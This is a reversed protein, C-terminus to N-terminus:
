PATLRGMTTLLEEDHYPKGMYVNVGLNMAYERHKDAIRSTIMIIPIHSLRPEARVNRALDFGDMRPMEIDVLMVTPVLTQLQELADIGDKALVVDWGERLLLKQTVKRVTLSDDVVMAIRPKHKASTLLMLTSLEAMQSIPSSSSAIPAPLDSPPMLPDEALVARQTDRAKDFTPTALDTPIATTTSTSTSTSTSAPKLGQAISLQVPDLILCLRGDSLLTASTLGPIRRMFPSLPKVVTEVNGAISDVHVAISTDGNSLLLILASAHQVAAVSEGMLSALHALPYTKGQTVYSGQQYAVSLDKPKLSVVNHILASPIAYQVSNASVMLVQNVALTFPVRLTLTTGQQPSTALSIRGGLSGVDNRVVDMGIGRGALGTVTDATSFGPTFILESLQATTPAIHPSLLGKSLALQHIKPLDLGSGDDSLTIELENGQQSLRLTILGQVPKKAQLRTSPLEIGHVVSNRTLHELSGSLKELISRDLTLHGGILDLRVQKGQEKASQRIVRYLREAVTDFAVLRSRMLSQTLAKTSKSQQNLDHEADLLTRKVSDRVSLLDNLSETLMRTLEQFRTFRDFELPDFDLAKALILDNRAAMQSEGQIELERLQARLREVNDTLDLLSARLQVVHQDLRGKSSSVETAQNVLQDLTDMRMRLAPMNPTAAEDHRFIAQELVPIKVALNLAKSPATNHTNNSSAELTHTNSPFPSDLLASTTAMMASYTNGSQASPILPSSPQKADSEKLAEYRLTIIDYDDILAAHTLLTLFPTQPQVSQELQSELHHVMAGLQMAGAMRLCGKLTHLDRRLTNLAASDTAALNLATQASPILADAEELFDLWIDADIDNAIDLPPLASAEDISADISADILLDSSTNSSIHTPIESLIIPTTQANAQTDILMSGILAVAPESVHSATHLQTTPHNVPVMSTNNLTASQRLLRPMHSLDALLQNLSDVTNQRISPYLECSFVTLDQAMECVATQLITLDHPLLAAQTDNAHHFIAEIPTAVEKLALLGITAASGKLTHAYQYAQLLSPEAQHKISGRQIRKTHVYTELVTQLGQINQLTEQLYLSFLPKSLRLPGIAIMGAAAENLKDDQSDLPLVKVPQLLMFDTSPTDQTLARAKLVANRASEIFGHAQDDDAPSDTAQVANTYLHKLPALVPEPLSALATIPPSPEVPSLATLLTPINPTLPALPTLASADTQILDAACADIAHIYPALVALFRALNCSVAFLPEHMPTAIATLPTAQADFLCDDLETIWHELQEQACRSFQLIATTAARHESVFSAIVREAHWAANGFAAFGVMRSSGKLTHFGRRIDNLLDFQEPTYELANLTNRISLLVERAEDIFVGYFESEHNLSAENPTYDLPRPTLAEHTDLLGLLKIAPLATNSPSPELLPAQNNKPTHTSVDAPQYRDSNQPDTALVPHTHERHLPERIDVLQESVTDFTFNKQAQEPTRTFLELLNTVQGFRLAFGLTDSPTIPMTQSAFLDLRSQLAQLSQTAAPLDLLNLISCTERLPQIISKIATFHQTELATKFGEDLCKEIASLNVMAERVVGSLLAHDHTEKALVQAPLVATSDISLLLRHQIDAAERTLHAQVQAPKRLLEELWLILQAGELGLPKKLIYGADAIQTSARVLADVVEAATTLSQAYLLDRLEVAYQTANRLRRQLTSQSVEIGESESSSPSAEDWALKLSNIKNHLAISNVAVVPAYRKTDLDLLLSQKLSFTDIVAYYLASEDASAFEDTHVPTAHTLMEIDFAIFYLAERFLRESVHSSGAILRQLHLNLRALWRKSWLNHSAPLRPLVRMTVECVKWFSHAYTHTSHHALISMLVALNHRDKSSAKDTLVLLMLGEYVTRVKAYSLHTIKIHQGHQTDEVRKLRAGLSPFYLDVPHAAFITNSASLEGKTLMVGRLAQYYPFLCLPQLAPNHTQLESLYAVLVYCAEDLVAYVSHELANSTIYTDIAQELCAVYHVLGQADIVQLAGAADHVSRKAAMLDSAPTTNVSANLLHGRTTKLTLDLEPLVWSLSSLDIAAYNV